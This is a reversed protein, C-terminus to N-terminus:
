NERKATMPEEINLGRECKMIALQSESFSEKPCSLLTLTPYKIINGTIRSCHVSQESFEKM